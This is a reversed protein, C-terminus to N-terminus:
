GYMDSDEEEDDQAANNATQGAGSGPQAGTNAHQPASTGPQAQTGTQAQTRTRAQTGTQPQAGGIVSAAPPGRPVARRGSEDEFDSDVDSVLESGDQVDKWKAKDPKLMFRKCFAPIRCRHQKIENLTRPPRPVDGVRSMDKPKQKVRVPGRGTSNPKYNEKHYFRKGAFKINFEKMLNNAEAASLPVPYNSSNEFHRQAVQYRQPDTRGNVDVQGAMDLFKQEIRNAEQEVLWQEEYKNFPGGNPQGRTVGTIQVYRDNRWRNLKEIHKKNHWDFEVEEVTDDPMDDWRFPLNRRVRFQGKFRQCKYEGNKIYEIVLKTPDPCHVVAPNRNPNILAGRPNGTGGRNGSIYDRGPIGRGGGRTRRHQNQAGDQGSDQSSNDADNPSGLGPDMEVDADGDAGSAATKQRKSLTAPLSQPVAGVSGAQGASIITSPNSSDTDSGSGPAKRKKSLWRDFKDYDHDFFQFRGDRIRPPRNVNVARLGDEADEEDGPPLPPFSVHVGGAQFWADIAAVVDWNHQELLKRASYVSNTASINLFFALKRDMALLGDLPQRLRSAEIEYDDLDWNGDPDKHDDDPGEMRRQIETEVDEPVFNNAHHLLMMHVNLPLRSRTKSPLNSAPNSPSDSMDNQAAEERKKRRSKKAEERLGTQFDRVTFIREQEVSDGRRMYPGTPQSPPLRATPNNVYWWFEAAARNVDWENRDLHWRLTTGSLMRPYALQNRLATLRADREDNDLLSSAPPDPPNEQYGLTRNVPLPLHPAPTINSPNGPNAGGQSAAPQSPPGGSLAGQVPGSQGPARRGRRTGRSSGGRSSNM